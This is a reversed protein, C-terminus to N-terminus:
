AIMLWYLMCVLSVLMMAINLLDAPRADLAVAAPRQRRVAHYSLLYRVLLAVQSAVFGGGAAGSLLTRWSLPTGFWWGAAAMGLGALLSGCLAGILAWWAVEGLAQSIDTTLPYWVKM